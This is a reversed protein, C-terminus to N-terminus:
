RTTIDIFPAEEVFALQRRREEPFLNSAVGGLTAAGGDVDAAARLATIFAHITQYRDAPAKATAVVIIANLAPPAGEVPKLPPASPRERLFDFMTENRWAFKGGLLLFLLAGLLYVTSTAAPPRGMLTEPSFGLGQEIARHFPPGDYAGIM